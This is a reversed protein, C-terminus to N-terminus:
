VNFFSREFAAGSHRQWVAEYPSGAHNEPHALGVSIVEVGVHFRLIADAVAVKLVEGSKGAADLKFDAASLADAIQQHIIEVNDM